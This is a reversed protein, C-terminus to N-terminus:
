CSYVEWVATTALRHHIRWHFAASEAEQDAVVKRNFSSRDDRLRRLSPLDHIVSDNYSHVILLPADILFFRAKVKVRIGQVHSSHIDRITVERAFPKHIQGKEGWKLPDMEIPRIPSHEQGVKAIM